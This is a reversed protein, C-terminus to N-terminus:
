VLLFDLSNNPINQQFSLYTLPLNLSLRSEFERGWGQCPQARGVSSSESKACLVPVFIVLKQSILLLKQVRLIFMKHFM